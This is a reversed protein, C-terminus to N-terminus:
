RAGAFPHARRVDEGGCRAHAPLHRNGKEGKPDTLILKGKHPVTNKNIVVEKGDKTKAVNKGGKLLKMDEPFFTKPAYLAIDPKRKM